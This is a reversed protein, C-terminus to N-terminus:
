QLPPKSRAAQVPKSRVARAGAGPGRTTTSMAAVSASTAAKATRRLDCETRPCIVASAPRSADRATAPRLAQNFSLPAKRWVRTLASTGITSIGSLSKPRRSIGLGEPNAARRTQFRGDAHIDQRASTPWAVTGNTRGWGDPKSSRREHHELGGMARVAFKKLPIILPSDMGPMRDSAEAPNTSSM